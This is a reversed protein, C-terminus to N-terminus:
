HPYMSKLLIIEARWEIGVKEFYATVLFKIFLLIVKNTNFIGFERNCNYLM